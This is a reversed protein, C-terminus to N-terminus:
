GGQRERAEELCAEIFKDKKGSLETALMIFRTVLLSREGRGPFARFFEEYIPKPLRIQFLKYDGSM